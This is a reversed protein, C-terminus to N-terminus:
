RAASVSTISAIVSVVVISAVVVVIAATTPVSLAVRTVVVVSAINRVIFVPIYQASIQLSADAVIVLRASETVLNLVAILGLWWGSLVILKRWCAM